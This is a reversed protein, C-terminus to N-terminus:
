RGKNTFTEARRKGTEPHYKIIKGTRINGGRDIQWFVTKSDITGILYKQVALQVAQSEMPFLDLLVQVPEVPIQTSKDQIVCSRKKAPTSARNMLTLSESIKHSEVQSLLEEHDTKLQVLLEIEDESYSSEIAEKSDQGNM